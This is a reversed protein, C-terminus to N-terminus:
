PVFCFAEVRAVVGPGWNGVVLFLVFDHLSIHTLMRTPQPSAYDLATFDRMFLPSWQSKVTRATCDDGQMDLLTTPIVNVASLRKVQLCRLVHEISAPLKSPRVTFGVFDSSSDSVKKMQPRARPHLPGSKWEITM